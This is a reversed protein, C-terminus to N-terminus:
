IVEKVYYNFESDSIYLLYKEIDKYGMKLLTEAYQNIQNIHEESEKGTKYDIIVASGNKIIVRDPRLIKGDKQLIDTETIIEADVSFWKAIKEDSLMKNLQSALPKRQEDTILGNFFIKDVANDVDVKYKIYSLTEHIINGRLTKFEFEKDPSINLKRHKPKITIKKYWDNSVYTKLQESKIESKLEKHIAKIKKGSEYINEKLEKKFSESNEIINKILSNVKSAEEGPVIVYLREEPRTFAVYLLNLNDLKTLVYEDLYDDKFYTSKLSQTAKVLYASSKDFPEVDSSVWMSDKTGDIVLKWDAFPIMVIKSQLGKASHITMIKIADTEESVTISFDQKHEDWYILFSILDSNEKQSYELIISQFRIIYPDPNNNLNFIKILQETLEYITLDNLVPKLKPKENEKFFEQPLKNLFIEGIKDKSFIDNIEPIDNLYNQLIQVKSIENKNDVIYRIANLLLRVKPSSELMLSDSSVFEYEKEALWNAVRSAESKRRVLILIDRLKYNDDLTNKITDLLNKKIEENIDDSKQIFSINVYGNKKDSVFDQKVTKYSDTIFKKYEENEIDQTLKAPAEAFFQNNFEVIDESSRRNVKLNDTKILSSFENLDEYINKLLLKMNGGRWRYISQKVDGVILSTNQESLSNVILPLFNRWHFSSTDQFEDILFNRYNNGIKEFIFPSDEKTIITQLINSIDSQLLIRNEKRYDNLLRVLDTFVGVTYITKRIELATNYKIGETNYYDITRTLLEHLGSNVADQLAPKKQSKANYWKSIDNYANLVYSNPEYSKKFRINNVLYNMVGRTGQLFDSIELSYKKIIKEADEGFKSMKNEFDTLINKLENKFDGISDRTDKIVNHSEKQIKKEWYRERFIESGLSKIQREVDWSKDDDMSSYIYDEMFKELSVDKDVENLLKESIADLAATNDFDVQFGLQIKLEKSFSRLVKNFFSDNTSISFNSYDHLINELVLKSQSQIDIKVGEKILQSKLDDDKEESLDILFDLIRNKMEATAKNTFTVALIHKFAGPYKFALKLYEKALTYTKGSGASSQYILLNGL